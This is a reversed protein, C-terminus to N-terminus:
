LDGARFAEASALAIPFTARVRSPVGFARPPAAEYLAPSIARARPRDLDGRGPRSKSGGRDDQGRLTKVGPTGSALQDRRCDDCPPKPQSNLGEHASVDHPSRM